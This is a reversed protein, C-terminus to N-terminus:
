RFRARSEMWSALIPSRPSRWKWNIAENVYYARIELDLNANLPFLSALGGGYGSAGTFTLNINTGSANQNFATASYNSYVGMPGLEFGFAAGNLLCILIVLLKM